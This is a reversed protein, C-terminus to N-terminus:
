VLYRERRNSPEKNALYALAGFLMGGAILWGLPEPKPGTVEQAAVIPGATAVGALRAAYLQVVRLVHAKLKPDSMYGKGTNYINSAPVLTMATAIANDLTVKAPGIRAILYAVGQRESWGATYGLSVLAVHNLNRWDVALGAARYAKLIRRLHWTAMLINQAVDNRNVEQKGTAQGWEVAVTSTIQFLGVAGTPSRAAPNGGSEAEATAALFAFPLDPGSQGRIFAEIEPTLPM